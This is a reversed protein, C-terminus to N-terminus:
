RPWAGIGGDLNYVKYGEKSLINCAQGSRNGSRCFLFYEKNKDLKLFQEKFSSSMFDINKAGKITGSSFEGPTRVDVLVASATGTFKEKFELGDLNEYTKTGMSFLNFM